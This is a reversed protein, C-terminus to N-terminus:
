AGSKTSTWQDLLGRVRTALSRGKATLVVEYRGLENPSRRSTVWGFGPERERTYDGIDLIHRSMVAKSVGAKAAYDNVSKGEDCTVLLFTDIYGIPLVRHDESIFLQILQQSLGCARKDDPTLMKREFPMPPTM